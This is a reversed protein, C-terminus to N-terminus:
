LQARGRGIFKRTSPRPSSMILGVARHDQLFKTNEAMMYQEACSYPVDDVACSSPSWPPFYYPPPWFLVVKATSYELSPDFATNFNPDAIDGDLFVLGRSRSAFGFGHYRAEPREESTPPFARSYARVAGSFQCFGVTGVPRYGRQVNTRRCHGRRPVGTRLKKPRYHGRSPAGHRLLLITTRVQPKESRTRRVRQRCSTLLRGRQVRFLTWVSTALGDTADHPMQTQLTGRQSCWDEARQAQLTGRLFM